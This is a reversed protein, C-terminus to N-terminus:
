LEEPYTTQRAKEQRRQRRAERREIGRRKRDAARWAWQATPRIVRNVGSSYYSKTTGAVVRASYGFRDGRSRVVVAYKSM